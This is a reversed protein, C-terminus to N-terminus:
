QPFVSPPFVLDDADPYARYIYDTLAQYGKPGRQFMSYGKVMSGAEFAQFETDFHTFNLFPNYKGTSPDYSNLFNKDDEIHSGEHAITQALSSGGLSESFEAQIYADDDGRAGIPTVIADTRYGPQTGADRDVQSQPKFTVSIHNHEGRDGWAKAADRVKPDKSKLDKQRQKEFNDAAKNCKKDGTKCDVDYMGTPDVFRLPNNRAYAYMNWQQPDLFKQKLIMIPDPKMFRGMSSGYYRAGFYDLGSESDREKGTFKYTNGSTPGVVPREGGFPYFDSDDLTTGGANVVVRATGLHDAFYYDVNNSSDRRAIRKGGFFIYEDALNGSADTEDLPDSSAGYWYLKGNSKQVRKGDGDYSYNVGAASILRNEADYTYQYPGSTPCSAGSSTVYILNGPADYCYNSTQGAVTNTAIQNLNTVSVNLPVPESCGSPGTTSSSLLNAWPDYGFTLGWCNANPITVGTTQTQATAIRILTDYVLTNM